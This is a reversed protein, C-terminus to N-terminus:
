LRCSRCCMRELLTRPRGSSSRTRCSWSSPSLLEVLEKKEASTLGERRGEDVEAQRIWNSLCSQSIGLRKALASVSTDDARAPEVDRRRFEPPYPKPM